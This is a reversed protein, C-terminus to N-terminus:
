ESDKVTKIMPLPFIEHLHRTISSFDEVGQYKSTIPTLDPKGSGLEMRGVSLITLAIRIAHHDGKRILPVLPGLVRPLGDKTLSIMMTDSVLIPQSSLFRTLHLRSRKFYAVAFATGNKVIM